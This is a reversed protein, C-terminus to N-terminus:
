HFAEPSILELPIIIDDFMNDKVVVVAENNLLTSWIDTVVPDRNFLTSDIDITVPDYATVPLLITNM